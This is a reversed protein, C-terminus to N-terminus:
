RRDAGRVIDILDHYGPLRGQHVGALVATIILAVLPGTAVEPLEPQSLALLAGIILADAVTLRVWSRDPIPEVGAMQREELLQGM